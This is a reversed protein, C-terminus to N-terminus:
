RAAKPWSQRTTRTQRPKATLLLPTTYREYLSFLLELRQTDSTFPQKQYCRDVARDLAAHADVLDKPMRLPDYLDALNSLPHNERAALVAQAATEVAAKLKAAPKEPWPFTNYVMSGSYQFDSKLRGGVQRTWAMHMASLLVGFLYRDATPLLFCKNSAVLSPPAIGIPIYDRRESSVEPILIYERTPQSRYFFLTPTHASERTPVATSKSRFERVKEVRAM